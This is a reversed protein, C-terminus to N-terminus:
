DGIWAPTGPFGYVSKPANKDKVEEVIEKGYIVVRKVPNGEADHDLGMNLRKFQEYADLGQALFDQQLEHIIKTPSTGKQMSKAIFRSGDTDDPLRTNGKIRLKEDQKNRLRKIQITSLKVDNATPIVKAFKSPDVQQLRNLNTNPKNFQRLFPNQAFELGSFPVGLKKRVIYNLYWKRTFYCRALSQIKQASKFELERLEKLNIYQPESFKIHNQLGMEKVVVDNMAKRFAKVRAQNGNDIKSEAINAKRAAQLYNPLHAAAEDSDKVPKGQLIAQKEEELLQAQTKKGKDEFLGEDKDVKFDEKLLYKKSKKKKRAFEGDTGIHPVDRDIYDM